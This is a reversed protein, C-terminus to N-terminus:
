RPAAAHSAAAAPARAGALAPGSGRQHVARRGAAARVRRCNFPARFGPLRVKRTAAMAPESELRALDPDATTATAVPKEAPPTTTTAPRLRTQARAACRIAAQEGAADPRMAARPIRPLTAAAEDGPNDERDSAKDDEREATPQDLAVRAGRQRM